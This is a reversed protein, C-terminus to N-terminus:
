PPLRRAARRHLKACLSLPLTLEPVHSASEILFDINSISMRQEKQM